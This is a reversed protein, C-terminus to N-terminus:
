LRVIVDFGLMFRTTSIAIPQSRVRFKPRTATLHSRGRRLPPAVGAQCEVVLWRRFSLHEVVEWYADSREEWRLRHDACYSSAKGWYWRLAPSHEDRLKVAQRVAVAKRKSVSIAM